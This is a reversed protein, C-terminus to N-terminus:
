SVANNLKSVGYDKTQRDRYGKGRAKALYSIRYVADPRVVDINRKNIEYYRYKLIHMHGNPKWMNQMVWEIKKPHQMKDGDFILFGHYHQQKAKEQERVWFHGVNSMKYEKLLHAKLEKIFITIKKNDSTDSKLHLDFRYLLVRKHIAIADDLVKIMRDLMIVYLGSEGQNVELWEGNHEYDTHLWISRRDKSM